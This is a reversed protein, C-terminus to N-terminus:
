YFYVSSIKLMSIVSTLCCYLAPYIVIHCITQPESWSSLFLYWIFHDCMTHTQLYSIIGILCKLGAVNIFFFLPNFVKYHGNDKSAISMFLFINNHIDKQLLVINKNAIKIQHEAAYCIGRLVNNEYGKLIERHDAKNTTLFHDLLM